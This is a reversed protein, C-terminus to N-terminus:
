EAGIIALARRLADIAQGRYAIVGARYGTEKAAAVRGLFVSAERLWERALVEPSTVIGRLDAGRQAQEIRDLATLCEEVSPIRDTTAGTQPTTDMAEYM